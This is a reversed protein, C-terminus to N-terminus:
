SMRLTAMPVFQPHDLLLDLLLKQVEGLVGEDARPLLGYLGEDGERGRQPLAIQGRGFPRVRRNQRIIPIFM